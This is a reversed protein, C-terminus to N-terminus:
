TRGQETILSPAELIDEQARETQRKEEKRREKRGRRRNKKKVPIYKSKM